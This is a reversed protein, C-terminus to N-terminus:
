HGRNMLPKIFCQVLHLCKNLRQAWHGSILIRSVVVLPFFSSLVETTLCLEATCIYISSELIRQEKWIKSIKIRATLMKEGRRMRQAM